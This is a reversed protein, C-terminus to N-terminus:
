RGASRGLELVPHVEAWGHQKDYRSIGRVTVTDGKRVGVCPEPLEPICEAVICIGADCIRIHADGDDEKRRYTVVGSVEVHTHSTTGLDRTSVPWFRREFNPRSPVVVAPAASQAATRLDAALVGALFSLGILALSRILM